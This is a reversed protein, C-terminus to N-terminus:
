PQIDGTRRVAWQGIGELLGSLNGGLTELAVWVVGAIIAAGACYELLTYGKQKGTKIRKVLTKM